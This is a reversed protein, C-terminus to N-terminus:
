CGGFIYELFSSRRQFDCSEFKVTDKTARNNKKLDYNFTGDKLQGLNLTITGLNKNLGSKQSKFFEIRIEREPDENCLESTLISCPKWLYVGNLSAMIESKYVPKFNQPSIFKYVLFFNYGSTDAFDASLRYSM